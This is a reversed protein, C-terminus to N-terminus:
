NTYNTTQKPQQKRKKDNVATATSEVKAGSAAFFGNVNMLFGARWVNCTAFLLNFRYILPKRNERQHTPKGKSANM